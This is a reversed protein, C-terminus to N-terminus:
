TINFPSTFFFYLQGAFRQYCKGSKVFIFKCGLRTARGTGRAGQGKGSMSHSDMKVEHGGLGALVSGPSPCRRPYVLAGEGPLCRGLHGTRLTLLM